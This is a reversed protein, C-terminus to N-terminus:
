MGYVRDLQFCMFGFIQDDVELQFQNESFKGLIEFLCLANISLNQAPPLFNLSM